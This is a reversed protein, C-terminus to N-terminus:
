RATSSNVMIEIWAGRSPLSLALVAVAQRSVDNRDVSGALPAVAEVVSGSSACHNRDVSGALPAVVGGVAM